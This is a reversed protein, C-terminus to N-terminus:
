ELTEVSYYYEDALFLLHGCNGFVPDSMVDTINTDRAYPGTVANENREVTPAPEDTLVKENPTNDPLVATRCGPLVLIVAPVATLLKVKIDNM